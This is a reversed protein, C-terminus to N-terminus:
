GLIVFGLLVSALSPTPVVAARRPVLETSNGFGVDFLGYYHFARIETHKALLKTRLLPVGKM